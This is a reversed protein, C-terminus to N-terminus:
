YEMNKIKRIREEIPPHTSFISSRSPFNIYMCKLQEGGLSEVEDRSYSAVGGIKALASALGSGSRNLKVSYADAAYERTRSIALQILSAIIRAIPQLIIALVAIIALLGAGGEERRSRRNGGGWFAMRALVSSLMIIISVLSVTLQSLMIDRHVIHSIEHGIVGAMEREDLIGLLGQTVCIFANKESTGSAFANPVSSPTIYLDPVRKMGAAEALDETIRKIRAQREDAENLPTGKAMALISIKATILQFPIVFVAIGIGIMRGYQENGAMYGIASALVYCMVMMIAVLLVSKVKNKAVETTSVYNENM